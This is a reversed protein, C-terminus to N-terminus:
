ENVPRQTVKQDPKQQRQLEKGDSKIYQRFDSLKNYRNRISVECGHCRICHLGSGRRIFWQAFLFVYFAFAFL